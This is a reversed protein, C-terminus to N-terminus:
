LAGGGGAVGLAGLLVIATGSDLGQSLIGISTLTGLIALWIANRRKIRM